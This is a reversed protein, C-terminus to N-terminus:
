IIVGGEPIQIITSPTGNLTEKWATLEYTNDTNKVYEFDILNIPNYDNYADQLNIWHQATIKDNANLLTIELLAAMINYFDKTIKTSQNITSINYTSDIYNKLLNQFTNVNTSNIYTNILNNKQLIINKNGTWYFLPRWVAYLTVNSANNITIVRGASYTASTANPNTSWGLFRYDTKTPKTIPITINEKYYGTVNNITGSGGNLNFSYTYQNPKFIYYIINPSSSSSAGSSANYSIGSSNSNPDASTTIAKISYGKKTYSSSSSYFTYNYTSINPINNSYINNTQSVITGSSNLVVENIQYYLTWPIVQWVAHLTITSSTGSVISLTITGGPQYDAKTATESLSWGLFNSSARSPTTSSITLTKTTTTATGTTPSSPGGTGGHVNYNIQFNYTVSPTFEIYITGGSITNRAYNSFVVCYTTNAAVEQTVSFRSGYTTTYNSGDDYKLYGTFIGAGDTNANSITPFSSSQFIFVHDDYKTYSSSGTSYIRVSGAQTPTFFFYDLDNAPTTYSFNTTGTKTGYSTGKQWGTAVKTYFFVVTAATGSYSSTYYDYSPFQDLCQDLTNYYIYGQYTYGEISPATISSSFTGSTIYKKDTDYCYYTQSGGSSGGGGSSSNQYFFVVYPKTSSLSASSGTGEVGYQNYYNLCASKSAGRCYGKYTVSSPISVNNEFTSRYMSYSSLSNSNSYNGSYYTGTTINYGYAYYYYATGGTNGGGGGGSSSAVFAVRAPWTSGTPQVKNDDSLEYYVGTATNSTRWKISGSCSILLYSTGTGFTYTGTQGESASTFNQKSTVVSGSSSCATLSITYGSNNYVAVSPM